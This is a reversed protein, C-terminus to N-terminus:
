LVGNESLFKQWENAKYEGENLGKVFKMFVSMQQPDAYGQFAFIKNYDKDFIVICPASNVYLYYKLEKTSKAKKDNAFIYSKDENIDIHYIKFDSVLNLLREDKEFDNKLIEFYGCDKSEFVLVMGKGDTTLKTLNQTDACFNLCLSALLLLLARM